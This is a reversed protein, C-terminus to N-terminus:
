RARRGRATTARSCTPTATTSRTARAWRRGGTPTGGSRAGWSSSPCRSAAWRRHAVHRLEGARARDAELLPSGRRGPRLPPERARCRAGGGEPRLPDLGAPRLDPRGVLHPQPQLPRPRAARGQGGRRPRPRGGGGLTVNQLELATGADPTRQFGTPTFTFPGPGPPPSSGRRAPVSLAATPRSRAGSVSRSRSPPRHSPPRAPAAASPEQAAAADRGARHGPDPRRRAAPPHPARTRRNYGEAARRDVRADPASACSCATSTPPRPRGTRRPRPCAPWSRTRWCSPCRRSCPARTPRRGGGPAPAHGRLSRERRLAAPGHVDRVHPHGRLLPRQARGGGGGAGAGPEHLASHGRVAHGGAAARAGGRLGDAQGRGGTM